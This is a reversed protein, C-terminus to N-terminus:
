RTLLRDVAATLEAMNNVRHIADCYPVYAPMDSDGTGWIQPREPNLWIIQKSRRKIQDMCDLRPDNYNNRGDGVFIVTTRHDVADFYHRTFHALSYGLDTNYYGPKMRELVIELAQHAPYTAFDNSIEQVTDIFAFSRAKAVQDQLEYIMGLMFEVVPRMSTSVDCILCLKPKLRRTKFQLELPISGYRLNARITRRVDLAGTKGRKQRLAARSRLQAALRRVEQRLQGRDAESLSQFPRQMLNDDVPTQKQTVTQRAINSGVHQQIQRDLADRNAEVLSKLDEIAQRSMGAEALMAWLQNLLEDLRDMGLQRRMRQEIWRQQYPHSAHGLGARNGMDNMQGPTPNQGALLMHLLNMLAALQDGSLPQGSQGPEGDSPPQQPQSMRELLARLAAALMQKQEPTLDELPHRLPPGGSNFYLSFLRDFLPLDAAEKILTARLSTRFRDRDKVGTFRTAQFADGSEAVSVRVGMTRLATIFEIIRTEM